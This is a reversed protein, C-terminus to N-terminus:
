NDRVLPMDCYRWNFTEHKQRRQGSTDCSTPIKFNSPDSNNFFRLMRDFEDARFGIRMNCKVGINKFWYLFIPLLKMKETCYRRAWSPLRTKTGEDIVQDFSLGAGM